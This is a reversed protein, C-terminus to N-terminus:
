QFIIVNKCSKGVNTWCKESMNRCKGVNVEMFSFHLTTQIEASLHSQLAM